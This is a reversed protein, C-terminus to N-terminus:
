VRVISNANGAPMPSYLTDTLLVFQFQVRKKLEVSIANAEQLNVYSTDNLISFTYDYTFSFRLVHRIRHKHKM